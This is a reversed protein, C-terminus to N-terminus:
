GGEGKMRRLGERLRRRVEDSLEDPWLVEVEPVHRLIDMVLERPDAYPLDLLWRGEADYHGRQGPHWRESAVWRAREATFRLRAQRRAPGAFIGYGGALAGDLEADPMEVAPQDLLQAQEIADVSFIRLDDRRHCWADCYWNDRWHVLRQPSIDRTDTEGSGRARYAIRLRQRALLAHAVAQYHPLPVRRAHAALVRIRRTVDAPPARLGKQLLQNLRHRLPALRAALMGGPELGALLQQMALAAHIEDERLTVGLEYPVGGTRARYDLLWGARERDYRVPMHHRDRLYAIDRKLTAPSIEFEDLVDQRRLCQGADLRKKIRDLRETQSM